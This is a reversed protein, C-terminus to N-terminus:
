HASIDRQNKNDLCLHLERCRVTNFRNLQMWSYQATRCLKSPVVENIILSKAQHEVLCSSGEHRSDCSSSQVTFISSQLTFACNCNIFHYCNLVSHHQNECHWNFSWPLEDTDDKFNYKGPKPLSPTWEIAGQAATVRNTWYREGIRELTRKM